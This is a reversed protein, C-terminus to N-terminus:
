ILIGPDGPENSHHDINLQGTNALLEHARATDVAPSRVLLLFEGAQLRNQYKIAQDKPVGLAVLANILAGIGAGGIAGAIMGSLPGLVVLTGVLPFAFMGVAGLLLGFFGGYWAGESAGTVAADGPRYFGLVKENSEFNRGIISIASPPIGNSTLIRVANEADDHNRYSAVVTEQLPQTGVPPVSQQSPSMTPNM